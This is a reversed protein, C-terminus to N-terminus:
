LVGRNKLALTLPKFYKEDLEVLPLRVEATEIIGMKCLAWKVPIPNSECFIVDSIERLEEAFIKVEKANKTIRSADVCLRPVVHSVVSIVGQAGLHMAEVFTGDDGSTM